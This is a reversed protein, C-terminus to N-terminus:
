MNKFDTIIINDVWVGTPILDVTINMTSWPRNEKKWFPQFGFRDTVQRGKEMPLWATNLHAYAYSLLLFHLTAYLVKVVLWVFVLVERVDGLILPVVYAVEEHVAICYPDSFVWPIWASYVGYSSQSLRLFPPFCAFKILHVLHPM